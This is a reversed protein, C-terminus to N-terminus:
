LLASLRLSPFVVSDQKAWDSSDKIRNPDHKRYEPSQRIAELAEAAREQVERNPDQLAKELIPVATAAAAGFGGLSQIAASRVASDKDQLASKALAPTSEDPFNTMTGLIIAASMRVFSNPDQSLAQTLLPTFNDQHESQNIIGARATDSSISSFEKQLAAAGEPGIASLALAAWMADDPVHLMKALQPVAASAEDGLVRFIVVGLAPNYSKPAAFYLLTTALNSLGEIEALKLPQAKLGKQPRQIMNVLSELDSTGIERVAALGADTLHFGPIIRDPGTDPEVHRIWFNYSRGGYIPKNAAGIFFWWGACSIVMLAVAGIIASRRSILRKSQM